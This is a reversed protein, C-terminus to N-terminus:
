KELSSAILCNIELKPTGSSIMETKALIVLCTVISLHNIDLLTNNPCGYISRSTGAIYSINSLVSIFSREEKDKIYTM